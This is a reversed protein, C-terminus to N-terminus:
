ATIKTNHPTSDHIFLCVVSEAKHVLPHQGRVPLVPPGRSRPKTSYSVHGAPSCISTATSFVFARSPFTLPPLSSHSPPFSPTQFAASHTRHLLRAPPSFFFFGNGFTGLGLIRGAKLSETELEEPGPVFQEDLDM